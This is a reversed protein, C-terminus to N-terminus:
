KIYDQYENILSDLEESKGGLYSKIMKAANPNIDDFGENILDDVQDQVATGLASYSKAFELMQNLDSM